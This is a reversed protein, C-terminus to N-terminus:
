VFKQFGIWKETVILIAGTAIILLSSVAAVSPDVGYEVSTMIKVPLTTWSTGLLFITIPVDDFSVIFAFIGGAVVGPKILPLTIKRFATWRDAGLVRAAEELAPDVSAFSTLVCRVVFPVGLAIHALLVIAFGGSLGFQSYFQLIAVGIVIGPFVLPLMLFSTIARPFRLSSRTLAYAAAIGLIGSFLTALSALSASALIASIYSPSSLVAGYWRLTLHSPPITMYSSSGISALVVVVVPILLFAMLVVVFTGLGFRRLIEFVNRRKSM